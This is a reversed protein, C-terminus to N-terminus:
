KLEEPKPLDQIRAIGTAELFQRTTAYLLPSGPTDARGTTRVLGRDMLGRLIEGSQVGRIAEIEARTIPQKYAVIALTDLAAPSPKQDARAAHMKQVAEAHDPRTLAQYGGALEVIEFARGTEDYEKRLTEIAERIAAGDTEVVDKIRDVTLPSPAAFLLAEVIQKLEAM